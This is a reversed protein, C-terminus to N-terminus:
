RQNLPIELYALVMISAEAAFDQESSVMPDDAGHFAWSSLASLVIYVAFELAARPRPHGPMEDRAILLAEIRDGIHTALRSGLSDVDPDRTSLQMIARILQQRERFMRATFALITPLAGSLPVDQWREPELVSTVTASAQDYFREGLTLLLADKDTFRAYFAGVSSGAARAIAAVTTREYGLEVILMESADLLRELTAKSREQQPPNVWELQVSEGM